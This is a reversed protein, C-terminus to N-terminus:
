ASPVGLGRAAARLRQRAAEDDEFASLASHYAARAEDPQNLVMRSRMLRIWGEEDRPDAQLRAALRAVMGEVMANQESPPLARAAEMQQRTPGPIGASAASPEPMRGALEIGHREAAAAITRRLDAEWPAGPPTDRLLALWDEVAEEHEGRLDKQVALFYRAPPNSPDIELARRFAREAEPSPATSASQLAEGLSAWNEANDPELEAARRYADASRALLPSQELPPVGRALEFWSWGLLRWGEADDPNERLRAELGAIADELSGAPTGPAAGAHPAAAPAEEGSRFVAIGVAAVALLGAAVLAITASAPRRAATETM